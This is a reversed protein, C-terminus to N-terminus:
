AATMLYRYASEWRYPAAGASFSLFHEHADNRIEFETGEAISEITPGWEEARLIAMGDDAFIYIAAHTSLYPNKVLTFGYESIAADLSNLRLISGTDVMASKFATKVQRQIRPHYMVIFNSGSNVPQGENDKLTTMDTVAEWVMDEVQASTPITGAGIVKSRTNLQATRNRGFVHANSFFIQGDPSKLTTGKELVQTVIWTWRNIAPRTLNATVWPRLLGQMDRRMQRREVRCGVDWVDCDVQANLTIASTTKRPLRQRSMPLTAGTASLKVYGQPAPLPATAIRSLWSEAAAGDPATLDYYVWGQVDRSRLDLSAM